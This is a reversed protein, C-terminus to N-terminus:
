SLNSKLCLLIQTSFAETLLQILHPEFTPAHHKKALQNILPKIRSADEKSPILWVALNPRNM